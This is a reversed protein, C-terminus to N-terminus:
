RGETRGPPAEYERLHDLIAAFPEPIERLAVETRDPDVAVFGVDELVPLDEHHLRTRLQEFGDGRRLGANLERGPEANEEPEPTEGNDRRGPAEGLLAREEARRWEVLEDCLADLGLRDHEQLVYIVRRRRSTSLARFREDFWPRSGVGLGGGPDNARTGRYGNPVM